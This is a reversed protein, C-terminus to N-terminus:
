SSLVKRANFECIYGSSADMVHRVRSFYYDGDLAPSLGALEHVQRALLNQDGIVRGRGSVFEERNRRFWQEAWTKAEAEDKFRKNTIAEFSFQGVFLKIAAASVHESAIQETPDGTYQSDPQAGQEEEIETTILKGTKTDKAEVKIKTKAESILYAPEFDILSSEQGQYYTYTQKEADPSFTKPDKFHLTWIGLDDGEVWFMFGSINALGKIFDYDTLGVRQITNRTEETPDVDVEFNYPAGSAKDEVIQSYPMEKFVRGIGKKGSKKSGEPANSMMKHDATYGIIEVFPITTAPFVYRPMTLVVRGIHKIDTGYGMWISMENGPQFMKADIFTFDPNVITLKAMDAIGDASEYEVRKVFQTVGTGLESGEVDIVYVPALREDVSPM